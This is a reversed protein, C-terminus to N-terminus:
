SPHGPATASLSGFSSIFSAAHEDIALRQGEHHRGAVAAGDVLHAKPWIKVLTWNL